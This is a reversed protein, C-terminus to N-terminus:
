DRPDIFHDPNSCRAEHCTPELCATWPEEALPIKVVTETTSRDVGHRELVAHFM